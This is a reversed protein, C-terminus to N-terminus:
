FATTTRACRERAVDEARRGKDPLTHLTPYSGVEKFYRVGKLTCEYFADRPTIEPPSNAKGVLFWIGAGALLVLTVVTPWVSATKGDSQNTEM